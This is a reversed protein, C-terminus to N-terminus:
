IHDMLPYNWMRVSISIIYKRSSIECLYVFSICWSFCIKDANKSTLLLRLQNGFYCVKQTSAWNDHVIAALIGWFNWFMFAWREKFSLIQKVSCFLLRLRPWELSILHWLWIMWLGKRKLILLDAIPSHLMENIVM